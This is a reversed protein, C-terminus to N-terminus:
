FSYRIFSHILANEAGGVFRICYKIKIIDNNGFKLLSVNVELLLFHFQGELYLIYFSVALRIVQRTKKTM